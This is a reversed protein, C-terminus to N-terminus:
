SGTGALCADAAAIRAAVDDPTTASPAVIPLDVVQSTSLLRKGTERLRQTEAEYAAAAAGSPFLMLARQDDRFRAHAYAHLGAEQVIKGCAGSAPVPRNATSTICGSLFIVIAGAFLRARM